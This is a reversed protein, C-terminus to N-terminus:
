DASASYGRPGKVAGFTKGLHSLRGDPQSGYADVEGTLGAVTYLTQGDDSASIASIPDPKEIVGGSSQLTILAPRQHTKSRTAYVTLSLTLAGLLFLSLPLHKRRLTM